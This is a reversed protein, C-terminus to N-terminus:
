PLFGSGPSLRRATPSKWQDSSLINKTNFSTEISCFIVINEVVSLKISKVSGMLLAERVNKAVNIDLLDSRQVTSHSGIYELTPVTEVDEIHITVIPDVSWEHIEYGNGVILFSFLDDDDVARDIVANYILGPLGTDRYKIKINDYTNIITKYPAQKLENIFRELDDGDGTGNFDKSIIYSFMTDDLPNM